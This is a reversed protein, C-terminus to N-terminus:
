ETYNEKIFMTVTRGINENPKYLVSFDKFEDYDHFKRGVKVGEPGLEIDVILAPRKENVMMIIAAVIIIFAFLFNSGQGLFIVRWNSIEFFSYFLCIIIFIGAGIYWNRSREPARHEPVQWRIHLEDQNNKQDM